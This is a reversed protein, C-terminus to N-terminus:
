KAVTKRVDPQFYQMIWCGLLMLGLGAFTILWPATRFLPVAALKAPLTADLVGQEGLSLRAVERGFADTVVSIGTNAARVLPVGEEIARMRAMVLHQYPGSSRGFWADNTVNVLWDPREGDLSASGPFIAEYCILASFSPLDGAKITRRSPGPIFDVSGPTLKELGLSAFLWRVPLFEGFPVLDVKDYRDLLQGAADMVYLSNHLKLTDGQREIFDSGMLYTANFPNGTIVALRNEPHELRYPVSSEPWVIIDPPTEAPQNALRVHEFFWQRVKDQDWKHHQAINAQVIRIQAQGGGAAPELVTLRVAGAGGLAILLGCALVPLPWSRPQRRFGAFSAGAIVTLAGLLYPGIWAIPQIMPAANGWISAIPNWPFWLGFPGRFLEALAWCAALLLSKAILNQPRFRHYILGIVGITVALAAALLVIAPVALAGFREADTFFAIGIWYLGLLFFSFGFLWSRVFSSGKTPADDLLWILLAFVLPAPWFHVPPLGAALVAGAILATLKPFHGPWVALNM